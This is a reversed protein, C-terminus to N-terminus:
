IKIGGVLWMKDFLNWTLKKKSFLFYFSSNTQTRKEMEFFSVLWFM